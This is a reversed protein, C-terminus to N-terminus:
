PLAECYGTPLEALLDSLEQDTVTDRLAGPSRAM